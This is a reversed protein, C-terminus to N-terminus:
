RQRIGPLVTHWVADQTRYGLLAGGGVILKGDIYQAAPALLAAPLDGLERWEQTEASLALVKDSHQDVSRGGVVIIEDGLVFVSPEFHSLPLPMEPGSTWLQTDTDFVDILPQDRPTGGTRDHEFQGGLLYIKSGLVAVGFQNRPSPTPVSMVWASGGDLDLMYHDPSDTNRDEELGSIYHLERGVLALGGGARKDPLSPGAEFTDTEIGYKWVNAVAPGRGNTEFGGATWITHGDLVANVHTLAQPMDALRTWSDTEPDYSDCRNTAAVGPGFGGLVYLKGEHVASAAEFRPAEMPALPTWRLERETPDPLQSGETAYPRGALLRLAIRELLLEAEPFEAAVNTQLFLALGSEPAIAVDAFHIGNGGNHTIVDVGGPAEMVVWGYGYYTDGGESIHPTWYKKMSAPSLAKGSTLAEAWRLMDYATTHIGGNARLAWYPGDAALPRELVTGWRTGRRYGQAMRGDGWHPLVYGTEYMGMPHFLHERLFQEYSADSLREVIAGLLSYGANTYEYKEGPPSALPQAMVRRVFAEREIPDWDGLGKLDVIGSSHTLLHHVTIARKDLPVGDLHKAISDGVSLQGREELKLIAAGTFQKTISGVTSVTGPTWRIGRERDALGYGEALLPRGHSSILVVGAFGSQEIESLYDRTDSLFRADPEQSRARPALVLVATVMAVDFCSRLRPWKPSSLGMM